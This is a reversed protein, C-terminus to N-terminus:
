RLTQKIKRHAAVGDRLATGQLDVLTRKEPDVFYAACKIGSAQPSGWKDTLYPRATL